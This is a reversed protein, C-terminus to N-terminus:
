QRLLRKYAWCLKVMREGQGTSAPCHRRNQRQHQSECKQSRRIRIRNKLFPDIPRKTTMFPSLILYKEPHIWLLCQGMNCYNFCPLAWHILANAEYPSPQSNSDWGGCVKSTFIYLSLEVASPYGTDCYIHCALSGISSLPWPHRANLIQLGEGAITVDGYSHFIKSHSSFDCLFM